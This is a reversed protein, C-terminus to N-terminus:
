ARHVARGRPWGTNYYDKLFYTGKWGRLGLRMWEHTVTVTGRSEDVESFACLAANFHASIRQGLADMTEDISTLHALEQSIEALFALNAERRKRETIDNFLVAVRNDGPAGVRFAYVDYIRPPAFASAEHEFRMAEGTRAIRGYTEFWFNDHEPAFERVTRGISHEFGTQQVFAPNTQLFVYAFAKGHEDFLVEITCFGEDISDVLTRYDGESRALTEATRADERGPFIADVTPSLSSSRPESIDPSVTQASPIVM